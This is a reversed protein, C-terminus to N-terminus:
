MVVLLWTVILSAAIWAWDIGPCTSALRSWAAPSTSCAAAWPAV